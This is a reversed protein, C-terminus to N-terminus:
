VHTKISREKSCRMKKSTETQLHSSRCLRLHKVGVAANAQVRDSSFSPLILLPTKMAGQSSNRRLAFLWKSHPAQPSPLSGECVMCSLLHFSHKQHASAATGPHSATSSAKSCITVGPLKWLCPPGAYVLFVYDWQLPGLFPDSAKPSGM